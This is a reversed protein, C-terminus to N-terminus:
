MAGRTVPHDRRDKGGERMKEGKMHGRRKQKREEM